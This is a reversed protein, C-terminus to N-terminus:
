HYFRYVHHFTPFFFFGLELWKRERERMKRGRETEGKGRM